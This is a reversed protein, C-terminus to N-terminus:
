IFVCVQNIIDYNNGRLGHKYPTERIGNAQLM